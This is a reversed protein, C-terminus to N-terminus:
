KKILLESIKQATLKVNKSNEECVDLELCNDDTWGVANCTGDDYRDALTKYLNKFKLPLVEPYAFDCVTVTACNMLDQGNIAVLNNIPNYIWERIYWFENDCDEDSDEDIRCESVFKYEENKTINYISFEMLDNGSILYENNNSHRIYQYFLKGFAYRSTFIQCGTKDFLKINQCSISKGYNHTIDYSHNYNDIILKFEDTLSHVEQDVFYAKEFIYEYQEFYKEYAISDAFNKM